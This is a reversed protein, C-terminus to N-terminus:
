AKNPLLLQFMNHMGHSIYQYTNSRVNDPM